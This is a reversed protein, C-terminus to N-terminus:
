TDFFGSPLDFRLGAAGESQEVRGLVCATEGLKALCALAAAPDRVVLVM